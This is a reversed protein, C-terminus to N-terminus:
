DPLQVARPAACGTPDVVLLGIVPADSAAALLVVQVPQEAVTADIIAVPIVSVIDYLVVMARAAIAHIEATSPACRGLAPPATPPALSTSTSTSTSGDAVAANRLSAAGSPELSASVVAALEDDDVALIDPLMPALAHGDFAGAYEAAPSPVATASPEVDVEPATPSGELAEPESDDGGFAMGGGATSISGGVSSFQSSADTGGFFSAFGILVVAVAAVAAFWSATNSARRRLPVVAALESRGTPAAADVTASALAAAVQADVISAPLPAPSRALLAAAARLEEVRALLVPDGEVLAREDPTAEEDLYASALEDDPREAMTM